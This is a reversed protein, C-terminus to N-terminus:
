LRLAQKSTIESSYSPKRKGTPEGVSFFLTQGGLKWCKLVLLWFALNSELWLACKEQAMTKIPLWTNTM